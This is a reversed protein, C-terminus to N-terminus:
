IPVQVFKSYLQIIHQINNDWSYHEHVHQMANKVLHDVLHKDDMLQQIAEATAIPDEKEIILGTENNTVVEPLGGVNTVIVPKGCAMAEVVSVGFSESDLISINCYIDIMNHYDTVKEPPVKGAFIVRDSLDLEKALNLCEEKMTGSGVLLLKISKDPNATTVKKLAHILVDTGYKKEIPKIAGIVIDTSNFISKVQKPIFLKMNVGFPTVEVERDVYKLIEKKMVHSTSMVMDPYRLNRQILKKNIISNHPFDYIDAGWVSVIYPRFGSLRGILGYSTAYHAHVIDPQFDRIVKKLKRTYLLYDLKSLLSRKFFHDDRQVENFIHINKYPKYWEFISKNLSFLGIEFGKDALSTAWKVLHASNIDGLFLIKKM